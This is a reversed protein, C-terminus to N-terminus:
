RIKYRAKLAEMESPTVASELKSKYGLLSNLKKATAEIVKDKDAQAIANDIQQKLASYPKVDKTKEAHTQLAELGYREILWTTLKEGSKVAEAHMAVVQEPKEAVVRRMEEITFERRANVEQWEESNSPSRGAEIAKRTKHEAETLEDIAKTIDPLVWDRAKQVRATFNENVEQIGKARGQPSLEGNKKISNLGADYDAQASEITRLAKNGEHVLMDTNMTKIRENTIQNRLERLAPIIRRKL